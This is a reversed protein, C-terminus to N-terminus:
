EDSILKNNHFQIFTRGQSAYNERENLGIHFDELEYSKINEINFIEGKNESLDKNVIQLDKFILNKEEGTPYYLYFGRMTKSGIILNKTPINFQKKGSLDGYLIMISKEPIRKFIEKTFESNVADLFLTPKNNKLVFQEFQTYFKSDSTNLINPFKLTKLINYANQSRVINLVSYKEKLLLKTLIKSITSAGPHLIISKIQYKQIERFLGLATLPSGFMTSGIEHSITQNYVFIDTYDRIIYQCWIGQYPKKNIEQQKLYNFVLVKKSLLEAPVLSGRSIITGSAQVGLIFPPNLFGEKCQMKEFHTIPACEVKILVQKGTPNPFPIEKIQPGINFDELMICKMTLGAQDFVPEKQM